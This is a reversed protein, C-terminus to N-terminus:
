AAAGNLFIVVAMFLSLLIAFGFLLAASHASSIARTSRM